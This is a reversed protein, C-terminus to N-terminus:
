PLLTKQFLGIEYLLSIQLLFIFCLKASDALWVVLCLSSEIELGITRELSIPDPAYSNIPILSYSCFTGAVMERVPAAGVAGGQHFHNVNRFQVTFDPLFTPM